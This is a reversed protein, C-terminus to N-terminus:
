STELRLRGVMRVHIRGGGHVPDRHRSVPQIAEVEAGLSAAENWEQVLASIAQNPEPHDEPVLLTFSVSRGARRLAIDDIAFEPPMPTILGLLIRPLNARDKLLRDISQVREAADDIESKMGSTCALIDDKGRTEAAFERHLQAIGRRDDETHLYRHVSFLTAALLLLGSLALYAIMGWYIAYRRRATPVRDRILNIDFLPM